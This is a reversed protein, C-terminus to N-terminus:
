DPNNVVGAIYKGKINSINIMHTTENGPTSAVNSNPYNSPVTVYEKSPM